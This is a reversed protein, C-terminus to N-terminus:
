HEDDADRPASTLPETLAGSSAEPENADRPAVLKEILRSPDDVMRLAKGLWRGTRHRVHTAPSSSRHLTPPPTM